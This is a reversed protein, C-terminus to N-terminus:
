KGKLIKEYEAVMKNGYDDWTFGSSVREKASRSMAERVDPHEYLYVLKEKLAAIDRIPIIFGDKGERVIDEAGTNTTAIVPLGCAMAQPQVLALGEEISMMAFVSGQSYYKYLEAQPVHGIYKYGGDYKKFFPRMEDNMTGILMLESNPLRLEAFAQMLYHVGKRLTMGGAFIVRFVDDEKPVQRFRSLDVGYPVHILKSEPIGKEIFTRKVFLSPISIHDAEAYEKLEKEVIRPHPLVPRLGFREYEEKLIDRQYEVHSSGRELVTVMGMNKANRMTRLSFSSWGVFIDAPVLLRSAKKDFLDNLFFNYDWKARLSMPMRDWARQVLEKILISRIKGRPIGYKETEFKPYSTILRELAGYKELQAALDFAHFKGGISIIIRTMIEKANKSFLIEM